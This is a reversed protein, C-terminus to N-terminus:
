VEYDKLFIQQPQEESCHVHLALTITDATSEVLAALVRDTEAM